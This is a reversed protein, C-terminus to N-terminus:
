AAARGAERTNKLRTPRQEWWERPAQSHRGSGPLVRGGPALVTHGCAICSAEYDFRREHEFPEEPRLDGGCARCQGAMSGEACVRLWRGHQIEDNYVLFRFLTM